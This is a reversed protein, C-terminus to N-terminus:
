LAFALELLVLPFRSKLEVCFDDGSLVFGVCGEGQVPGALTGSFQFVPRGTLLKMLSDQILVVIEFHTRFSAISDPPCQLILVFEVVGYQSIFFDSILSLRFCRGLSAEHDTLTVESLFIVFFSRLMEQFAGERVAVFLPGRHAKELRGAAEFNKFVNILRLVAVLLENLFVGSM